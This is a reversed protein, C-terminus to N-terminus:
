NVFLDNTHTDYTHSSAGSFSSTRSFGLVVSEADISPISIIDVSEDTVTVPDSNVVM